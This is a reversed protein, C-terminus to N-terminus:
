CSISRYTSCSCSRRRSESLCRPLKAGSDPRAMHVHRRRREREALESHQEEEGASVGEGVSETNRALGRQGPEGRPARGYVEQM